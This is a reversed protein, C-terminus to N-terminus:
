IGLREILEGMLRDYEEPTKATKQIERKKTEYEHYKNM